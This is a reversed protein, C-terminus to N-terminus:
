FSANIKEFIRCNRGIFYQLPTDLVWHFMQSTAEKTFNTLPM